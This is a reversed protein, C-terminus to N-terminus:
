IQSTKLTSSCLLRWDKHMERIKVWKLLRIKTKLCKHSKHLKRSSSAAITKTKKTEKMRHIGKSQDM